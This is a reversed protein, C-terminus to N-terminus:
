AAPEAVRDRVYVPLAQAPDLTRGAAVEPQALELIESARPLLEPHLTAGAERCRLALEPWARLGRGAAAWTGSEPRAVVVAAPPDVREEGELILLPSVAFRAWYVERMRADNAVLIRCAGADLRAVRQAVSGIFFTGVAGRGHTSMVIQDVGHVKAADVIAEAVVGVIAHAALHKLGAREAHRLARALVQQQAERLAREVAGYDLMSVAGYFEPASRVNVLEVELAVADRQLTAAWDIARLAAQCDSCDAVHDMAARLSTGPRSGVKRVTEVADECQM